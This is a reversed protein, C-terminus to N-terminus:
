FIRSRIRRVGAVNNRNVVKRPAGEVRNDILTATKSEMEVLKAMANQLGQSDGLGELIRCAVRQALVQHLETPVNPVNTEGAMAMIDGVQLTSPILAPDMTLTKASLNVSTVANDFSIINHPSKRKVFDYVHDVAFNSPVSSLTIRGNTRDIATITGVKDSKVVNNPRLYYWMVLSGTPSEGARPFLTLTSGQVYFQKWNQTTITNMLYNYRDDVAIRTMEYDNGMQDKYNVERLKNGISREPLPYDSINPLIPVIYPPGVLYEEREILISPILGLMMEDNIFNIIDDETFTDQNIPVMARVKISRILEETTLGSFSAM